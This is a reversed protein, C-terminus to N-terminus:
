VLISDVLKKGNAPKQLCQDVGFENALAADLTTDGLLIIRTEKSQLDDKIIKALAFCSGDGNPADIMVANYQTKIVARLADEIEGATDVIAGLAQVVGAIANRAGLDADVILVSQGELPRGPRIAQTPLETPVEVGLYQPFCVSFTSGVGLDSAVSIWGGNLEVLNKVLALGLGTGKGHKNLSSNASSFPDFINKLLIPDIGCGKDIIKVCWSNPECSELHVTVTSGNASFKVANHVLNFVIQKAHRQDVCSRADDTDNIFNLKIDRRQATSRLLGLASEVIPAFQSPERECRLKGAVALNIDLFDSVLGLMQEGYERIYQLTRLQDKDLKDGAVLELTEASCLIATLPNKIDHAIENSVSGKIRLVEEYERIMREARSYYRAATLWGAVALCLAIGVLM